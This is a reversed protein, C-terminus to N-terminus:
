QLSKAGITSPTRARYTRYTDFTLRRIRNESIPRDTPARGHLWVRDAVLYGSGRRAPLRLAEATLMDALSAAWPTMGYLLEFVEDFLDDSPSERITRIAREAIDEPLAPCKRLLTCFQEFSLFTADPSAGDVEDFVNLLLSSVYLDAHLPLHQVWNGSPRVPAYLAGFDDALASSIGDRLAAFFRHLSTSSMGDVCLDTLFMLGGPPELTLCAEVVDQLADRQTLSSASQRLTFTYDYRQRSGLHILTCEGDALSSWERIARRVPASWTYCPFGRPIAPEADTSHVPEFLNV